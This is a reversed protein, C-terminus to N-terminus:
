SKELRNELEALLKKLIQNESKFLELTEEKAALLQKYVLLLDEQTPQNENPQDTKNAMDNKIADNQSKKHNAAEYVIANKETEILEGSNSLDSFLLDIAKVEFYAALKLITDFDPENTGDEYYSVAGRGKGIYKGVETQSLRRKM